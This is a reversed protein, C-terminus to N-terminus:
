LMVESENPNVFMEEETVTRRILRWTGGPHRRRIRVFAAEGM